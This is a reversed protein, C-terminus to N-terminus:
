YKGGHNQKVEDRDIEGDNLRTVPNAAEVPAILEPEGVVPLTYFGDQMAAVYGGAARPLVVGAARELERRVTEGSTPDTTFLHNNPIDVWVVKGIRPDWVPGEGVFADHGFLIEPAPLTRHTM